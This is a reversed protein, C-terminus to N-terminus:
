RSHGLLDQNSLASIETAEATDAFGTLDGAVAPNFRGANIEQVEQVSEIEIDIADNSVVAPIPALSSLDAQSDPVFALAIAGLFAISLMRFFTENSM